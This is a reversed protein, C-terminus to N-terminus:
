RLEFKLENDADVLVYHHPFPGPNIVLTRGIHDFGRAEHIHGCLVMDPQKEEIFKRLAKSGVHFGFFMKDLKTGHPPAHSVIITRLAKPSILFADLMAKIEEESYELPTHLPTKNCGGIGFFLTNDITKCVVHLDIEEAQLALRVGPRDCNGPIALVTRNINTIARIVAAAEEHDGFNTIDGAILVIDSKRLHDAVTKPYDIRGHIDTLGFIRMHNYEDAIIKPDPLIEEM